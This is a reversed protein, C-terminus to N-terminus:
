GSVKKSVDGGGGENGVEVANEFLGQVVKMSDEFFEKRQFMGECFRKQDAESM